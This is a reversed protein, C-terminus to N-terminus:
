FDVHPQTDIARIPRWMDSRPARGIGELIAQRVCSSFGLFQCNVYLQGLKQSALPEFCPFKPHTIEVVSTGPASFMVNTLGAGHIGVIVTASAFMKVQDEMSLGELEAVVHDINQAVLFATANEFFDPALHRRCSGVCTKVLSGHPAGRRRILVVNHPRGPSPRIAGAFDWMLERFHQYVDPHDRSWARMSSGPDWDLEQCDLAGYSSEDAWYSINVNASGYIFKYQQQMNRTPDKSYTVAFTNEQFPGKVKWSPFYVIKLAAPYNRLLFMLPASVDVIFHYYEFLGGTGSTMSGPPIKFCLQSAIGAASVQPVPAIDLLLATKCSVSTDLKMSNVKALSKAAEDRAIRDDSSYKLRSPAAEVRWRVKGQYEAVGASNGVITRVEDSFFTDTNFTFPLRLISAIRQYDGSARSGLQVVHTGPQAFVVNALGAGCLGVVVSANAFTRIQEELAM